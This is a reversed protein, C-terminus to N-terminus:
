TVQEESKALVILDEEKLKGKGNMSLRHISNMSCFPILRPKSDKDIVGFHLACNQVRDLDFNYPDMFHMIGITLWTGPLWNTLMSTISKSSRATLLKPMLKFWLKPSIYLISSTLLAWM